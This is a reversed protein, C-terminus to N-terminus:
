TTATTMAPAAPRTPAASSRGGACGANNKMSNVTATIVDVAFISNGSPRLWDFRDSDCATFKQASSASPGDGVTIMAAILAHACHVSRVM